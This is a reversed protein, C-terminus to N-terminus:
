PVSFYQATSVFPGPSSLCVRSSAASEDDSTLSQVLLAPGNQPEERLLLRGPPVEKAPPRRHAVATVAHFAYSGSLVHETTTAGSCYASLAPDGSIASDDSPAQLGVVGVLAYSFAEGTEVEISLPNSLTPPSDQLVRTAGVVREAGSGTNSYSPGSWDGPLNVSAVQERALFIVVTSVEGLVADNLPVSASSVASGSALIRFPSPPGADFPTGADDPGADDPTPVGGDEEVGADDRGADVPVVGGPGSDDLPDVDVGGDSPLAADVPGGDMPAGADLASEGGADESTTVPPGPGGDPALGSGVLFGCGSSAFSVFLTLAFARFPAATLVLEVM